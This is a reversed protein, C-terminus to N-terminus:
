IPNFEGNVIMAESISRARRYREIEEPSKNAAAERLLRDLEEVFL